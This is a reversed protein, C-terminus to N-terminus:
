YGLDRAVGPDTLEFGDFLRTIEQRPRFVIPSTANKYVDIVQDIESADPGDTTLHSLALCSAPALRERFAALIGAPGESDRVFHFIVVFLVAVPQSFDILTGLEPDDLIAAPDRIDATIVTTAANTALLARGHALL